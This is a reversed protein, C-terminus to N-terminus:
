LNSFFSFHAFLAFVPQLHSSLVFCPYSERWGKLNRLETKSVKWKREMEKARLDAANLAERESERASLLDDNVRALTDLEKLLEKTQAKLQAVLDPSPGPAAAPPSPNSAISLQILPRFFFFLSLPLSFLDSILPNKDRTQLIYFSVRHVPHFAVTGKRGNESGM